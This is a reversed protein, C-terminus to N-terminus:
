HLICSGESFNEQPETNDKIRMEGAYRDIVLLPPELDTLTM